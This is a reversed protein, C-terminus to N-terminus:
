RRAGRRSRIFVGNGTSQKWGRRLILAFTAFSGSSELWGHDDDLIAAQADRKLKRRHRTRVPHVPGAKESGIPWANIWHRTGASRIVRAMALKISVDRVTKRM